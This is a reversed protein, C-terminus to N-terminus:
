TQSPPNSQSPAGSLCGLRWAAAEELTEKPLDKKVRHKTKLLYIFDPVTKGSTSHPM